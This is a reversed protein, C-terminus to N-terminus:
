LNSARLAIMPDVHTAQRSPIYSALLAVLGVLFPIIVFVGLSHVSFGEFSSAFLRPLPLSIALGIALGLAALVIGKGVIMRSIDQRNAGLAVRIGIERTRQAVTYTIVGFIGIGALLLALGAFIGLLTEM